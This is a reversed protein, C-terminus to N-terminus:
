SEEKMIYIGGHLLEIKFKFTDFSNSLFRIMEPFENVWCFCEGFNKFQNLSHEKFNETLM